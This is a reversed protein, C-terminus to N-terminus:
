YGGGITDWGFTLGSTTGDSHTEYGITLTSIPADMNYIVDPATSIRYDIYDTGSYSLVMEFDGTVPCGFAYDLADVGSVSELYTNLFYALGVNHWWGDAPYETWGAENLPNSEDPQASTIQLEYPADQILTRIGADYADGGICNLEMRLMSDDSSEGFRIEFSEHNYGPLNEPQMRLGAAIWDIEEDNKFITGLIDDGSYTEESGDTYHVTITQGWVGGMIDSSTPTIPEEWEVWPDVLYLVAGVLVIGIIVAVIKENM